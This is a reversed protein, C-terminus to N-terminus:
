DFYEKKNIESFNESEYAIEFYRKITERAKTFIKLITFKSINENLTNELNKKTKEINMEKCFM